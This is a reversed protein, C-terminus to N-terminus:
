SLTYTANAVLAITDAGAHANAAIVASRLTIFTNGTGGTIVGTNPDVSTFTLDATNTPTYSNPTIRDEMHEVQPRCRQRLPRRKRDIKAAHVLAEFPSKKQFWKRFFNSAM